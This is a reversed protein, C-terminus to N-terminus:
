KKLINVVKDIEFIFAFNSVTGNKINFEILQKFIDKKTDIKLLEQNKLLQFIYLLQKKLLLFKSSNLISIRSDGQQLRRNFYDDLIFVFIQDGQLFNNNRPPSQIEPSLQKIEKQEKIEDKEINISFGNSIYFLNPATKEESMDEPIDIKIFRKHRRTHKHQWRSRRDNKVVSRCSLCDFYKPKEKKNKFITM